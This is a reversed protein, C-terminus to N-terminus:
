WVLWICILLRVIILQQVPKTMAETKSVWNLSNDTSSLLSNSKDILLSSSNSYVTIRETIISDIM